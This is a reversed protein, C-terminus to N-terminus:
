EFYDVGRLAEYTKQFKDIAEKIENFDKKSVQINRLENLTSFLTYSDGNEIFKSEAEKITEKVKNLTLIEVPIEYRKNKDTKFIKHAVCFSDLPGDPHNKAKVEISDELVIVEVHIESDRCENINYLDSVNDFIRDKSAEKKSFTFLKPIYFDIMNNWLNENSKVYSCREFIKIKKYTNDNQNISPFIDKIKNEIKIYTNDNSSNRKSEYLFDDNLEDRIDILFNALESIKELLEDQSIKKKLFTMEKITAYGETIGRFKHKYKVSIKARLTLRKFFKNVAIEFTICGTDKVQKCYEGIYSKMVNGEFWDYTHIKIDADIGNYGGQNFEIFDVCPIHKEFYENLFDKEKSDMDKSIGKEVLETGILKLINILEKKNM